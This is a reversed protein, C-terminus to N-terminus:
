FERLSGKKMDGKLELRNSVVWWAQDKASARGCRVHAAGVEVEDFIKWLSSEDSIWRLERERREKRGGAIEEASHPRWLSGM